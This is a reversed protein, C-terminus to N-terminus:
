YWRKLWGFFGRKPENDANHHDPKDDDVNNSSAGKDAQPAETNRVSGNVDESGTILKENQRNTSLNLQQQQSLLVQFNDIEKNKQSVENKLMEIQDRLSNVLESDDNMRENTNHVSRHSVGKVILSKDHESYLLAKGNKSRERINNDRIYRWVKTKDVGAIDAIESMKYLRENSNMKTGGFTWSHEEHIIIDYM